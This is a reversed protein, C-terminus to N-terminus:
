TMHRHLGAAPAPAEGPHRGLSMPLAVFATFIVPLLSVVVVRAYQAAFRFLTPDM